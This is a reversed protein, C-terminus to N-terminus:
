HLILGSSFTNREGILIEEHSNQTKRGCKHRDQVWCKPGNGTGVIVHLLSPLASVQIVSSFDSVPKHLTHSNPSTNTRGFLFFFFLVLTLLRSHLNLNYAVGHKSTYWVLSCKQPGVSVLISLHFVCIDTLTVVTIVSSISGAANWQHFLPPSPPISKVSPATYLFQSKNSPGKHTNIQKM